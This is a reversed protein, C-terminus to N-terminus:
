YTFETVLAHGVITGFFFLSETAATGGLQSFLRTALVVNSLNSTPIALQRGQSNCVQIPDPRGADFAHAQAFVTGGPITNPIAVASLGANHFSTAGAASTLGLPYIVALDTALNSCLGPVALNPNTTGLSLFVPASLPGNAVTFNFLLTGGMDAFAPALTM